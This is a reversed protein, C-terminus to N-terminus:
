FVRWDRTVQARQKKQKDPKEPKKYYLQNSKEINCKRHAIAMNDLDSPHGGKSVPIKHDVTRSLPHPSKLAPDVPEGCIWCVSQTAYIIKKNKEFLQRHAPTRDPRKM